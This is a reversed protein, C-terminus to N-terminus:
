YKRLQQLVVGTTTSAGTGAKLRLRLSGIKTVDYWDGLDNQDGFPFEFCHNPLYGRAIGVVQANGTNTKLTVKGGKFYGDTAYNYSAQNSPMAVLTAYYDTPQIYFAAGTSDVQAEFQQTVPTWVSKMVRHYLELDWDFPIRKENDEDLRAESVQYWPEYGNKFAQLIMKRIPHDTPIDVYEYGSTPKAANWHEKSMLFGIPSPVKEDFCEAYVALANATVGTDSVDEDWTIKLQPNAFKKPDFALVPDYLFRGFDIAFVDYESCASLHQGHNMCPAKRDYMVLAQNEGGNMSHLVDSGDVLEIKTIDRWPEADMSHKSKTRSFTMTIRSIIDKVNVDITQTGSAGLDTPSQITATRYNM